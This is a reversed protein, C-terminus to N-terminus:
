KLKGLRRREAKLKREVVGSGETTTIFVSAFLHVDVGGEAGACVCECACACVRMCVGGELAVQRSLVDCKM